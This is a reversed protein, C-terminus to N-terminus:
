RTHASFRPPGSITKACAPEIGVGLAKEPLTAPSSCAAVPSRTRWPRRAGGCSVVLEGTVGGRAGSHVMRAAPAAKGCSREVDLAAGAPISRGCSRRWRRGHVPRARRARRRDGRTVEGASAGRRAGGGVDGRDRIPGGGSLPRATALLLRDAAAERGRVPPASCRSSFSTCRCRWPASIAPKDDCIQRFIGDIVLM